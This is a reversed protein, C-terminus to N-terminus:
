PDLGCVCWEALVTAAEKEAANAGRGLWAFVTDEEPVSLLFCDGSNLNAVQADIQM